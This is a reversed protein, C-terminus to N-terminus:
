LLCRGKGRGCHDGGTGEEEEGLTEEKGEEEEGMTEGKGEEEEGM